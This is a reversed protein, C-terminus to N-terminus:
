AKKTRFIFAGAGAIVSGVSVMLWGAGANSAAEGTGTEPLESVGDTSGGDTSGGDTSGGDTTGGDTSGGDTSGGDTTGGDTSGGDTTGGDTSGGDTSGGDTTGGDTSGGDTTGGDTSGGDTSGGDPTCGQYRIDTVGRAAAQDRASQLDAKDDPNQILAIVADIEGLTVTGDKDGDALALGPNLVCVSGQAAVDTTLAATGMVGLAVASVMMGRFMHKPNMQM